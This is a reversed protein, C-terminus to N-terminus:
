RGCWFALIASSLFAALWFWDTKKTKFDELLHVEGRFGRAQMSLHVDNSLQMSKSLLVGLSAVALRRTEEPAMRGVSRSKRSELMDAAVGLLVFIYRYTMGLITVLVTPCRFVRLSKLLWSWRTSLILLASLTASAAARSVLFAASRLGTETINLPGWAWHTLGPTLVLSPLAIPGSFLAVPMWVWAALIKIRIGSLAALLIAALFLAAIVLFRHAVSVSVILLFFGLLKIRPDIGQLLGRKQASRDAYNAYRSARLFTQLTQEVINSRKKGPFIM